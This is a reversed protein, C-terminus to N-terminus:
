LNKLEDIFDGLGDQMDATANRDAWLYHYVKDLIDMQEESPKWHRSKENQIGDKVGREYELNGFKTADKISVTHPQPHLSKLWDKAVRFANALNPHSKNFSEDNGLIDVACIADNFIDRDEESWEAPKLELKAANLLQASHEKAWQAVDVEEGHLYQQWGDSFASFLESEFDSLEIEENDMEAPKQEKHKEIEEQLKKLEDIEQKYRLPESRNYDVNNALAVIARTLISNAWEADLVCNLPNSDATKPNEKQKELWSIYADFPIDYYGPQTSDNRVNGVMRILNKRIKEDESEALETIEKSASDNFLAVAEDYTYHGDENEVAWFLGDGMDVFGEQPSDSVLRVSQEESRNSGSWGVDGSDFVVYYASSPYGTNLSSSWYEGLSGVCGLSTGSRYGAAPLFISNGNPATVVQGKREKDWKWERKVILWRWEEITPLRKLPKKEAEIQKIQTMTLRGKITMECIDSILQYFRESNGQKGPNGIFSGYFSMAKKYVETGVKREFEERTM